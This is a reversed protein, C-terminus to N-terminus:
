ASLCPVDGTQRAGATIRLRLHDILEIGFHWLFGFHGPGAAIIWDVLAEGRLGRHEVGNAHAWDLVISRRATRSDSPGVNALFYCVAANATVRTALLRETKLRAPDDTPVMPRILDPFDGAGLTIGHDHAWRAVFFLESLERYMNCLEECTIGAQQAILVPDIAGANPAIGEAILRERRWL